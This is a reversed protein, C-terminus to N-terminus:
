PLGALIQILNMEYIFPPPPAWHDVPLKNFFVLKLKLIIMFWFFFILWLWKSRFDGREASNSKKRWHHKEWRWVAVEPQCCQYVRPTFSPIQRSSRGGFQLLLNTNSYLWFQLTSYQHSFYIRLLRTIKQPPHPRRKTINVKKDAGRISYKNPEKLFTGM